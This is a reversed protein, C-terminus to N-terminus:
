LFELISHNEEFVGYRTRGRRESHTAHEESCRKDMLRKRDFINTELLDDIVPTDTGLAVGMTRFRASFAQKSVNEQYAVSETRHIAKAFTISHLSSAKLCKMASDCRHRYLILFYLEEPGRGHYHLGDRRWSTAGCYRSALATPVPRQLM